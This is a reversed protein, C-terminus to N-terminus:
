VFNKPRVKCVFNDQDVLKSFAIWFALFFRLIMFIRGFSGHPISGKVKVFVEVAM